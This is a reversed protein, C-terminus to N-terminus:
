REYLFTNNHKTKLNTRLNCLYFVNLNYYTMKSIALQPVPSWKLWCKSTKIKILPAVLAYPINLPCECLWHCYGQAMLQSLISIGHHKKPYQPNMHDRKSTIQPPALPEYRPQCVKSTPPSNSYLRRHDTTGKLFPVVSWLQQWKSGTFVWRLQEHFSLKRCSHKISSLSLQHVDIRLRRTEILARCSGTKLQVCFACQVTYYSTSM